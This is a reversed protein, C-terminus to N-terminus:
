VHALGWVTLRGSAINGTSWLIQIRDTTIRSNRRGWFHGGNLSGANMDAAIWEGTIAPYTGTGRANYLTARFSLGEDTQNGIGIQSLLVVEIEAAENDSEGTLSSESEATNTTQKDSYWGYDTSGSDVGNSDGIRLLPGGGDNVPHLDNAIIYYTDYTASLGTIDLTASTSAVVTGILNWAGGGAEAFSDSGDADPFKLVGDGIKVVGSGNGTLALDNNTTSGTVANAKITSM